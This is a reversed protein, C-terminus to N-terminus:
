WEVAEIGERDEAELAAAIVGKRQWSHQYQASVHAQAAEALELMEDATLEYQANSEARFAFTGEPNRQASVALGTINERDRQRMQVTDTTDGFTHEFGSAIADDRATEIEDRKRAAIDELDPPPIPVWIPRGNDDGGRRKGAPPSCKGYEAYESATVKIADDPWVGMKKYDKIKSASYFANEKASFYM